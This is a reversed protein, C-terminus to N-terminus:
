YKFPRNLVADIAADISLKGSLAEYVSQTIPMDVAHNKALKLAAEATYVGETVSNRSALVDELKEGEGLALGLSFNRSLPSSCTLMMDGVGCMGLLTERKGGMAVCLRGIEAVGRTILAARASEGMKRGAVIGAAIAIVNKIAGGLQAGVMDHSTYPRFRKAGLGEQLKQALSEDEAAITIASPMGGAIERAFNPGSMVAIPQGKPLIEVAVHSLLRASKIEVGKSCIVIPKNPTLHPALDTLIAGMHQAPTVVLIIDQGALVKLDDTAKLNTSLKLGPLYHPNEHMDNVSAVVEAELAWLTCDRGAAAQVQALATGWAGGGIVGISSQSEEVM